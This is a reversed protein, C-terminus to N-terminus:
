LLVPFKDVETLIITEEDFGLKSHSGGGRNLRRLRQRKLHRNVLFIFDLSELIEITQFTLPIFELWSYTEGGPSKAIVIPASIASGKATTLSSIRNSVFYFKISRIAVGTSM